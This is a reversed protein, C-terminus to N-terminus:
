NILRVTEVRSTGQLFTGALILRLNRFISARTYISLDSLRITTFESNTSTTSTTTPKQIIPLYMQVGAVQIEAVAFTQGVGPDTRGISAQVYFTAVGSFGYNPMFKLGAAADSSSIFDNNEIASIGDNKYLLGDSIGSIKFYTVEAGDYPSRSIVLGQTTKQNIRTSSPTISPTDAVPEVVVSVTAPLSYGIGVSTGSKSSQVEFQATGYFHGIPSFKLGAAGQDVTIFAGELIPTTGDNQFLQGNRINFLKFHTVSSGDAPNRSIVLGTKTQQHEVTKANTVIPTHSYSYINISATATNSSFAYAWGNQSVNAEEGPNGSTQDWARMLISSSGYYGPSPIVRVRTNWNNALLRSQTPSSSNLSMWSQGGDLSYQWVGHISDTGVVAVGQLAGGDNDSILDGALIETITTGPNEIDPINEYISNLQIVNRNLTPSTNYLLAGNLSFQGDGTLITVGVKGPMGAPATVSVTDNEAHVIVAPNDGILVSRVYNVVGLFTLNSGYVELGDGGSTLLRTRSLSTIGPPLGLEFAGIDCGNGVPRAMGRQDFNLTPGGCGNTGVPIFNLAPSGPKLRHTSTPGGNAALVDLLPDQNKINNTDSITCGNTNSILNYGDSGYTGACDSGTAGTGNLTNKGIISNRLSISGKADFIGGGNGGQGEIGGTGVGGKGAFNAFLTVSRLELQKDNYIGGGNGGPGPMAGLESSKDAGNGTGNESITSNVIVGATGGNYIGGGFGSAAGTSGGVGGNGTFNKNILSDYINLKGGNLIGGGYGGKAGTHTNLGLGGNGTYNYIINSKTIEITGTNYIGAGSGVISAELYRYPTSFEATFYEVGSEGDETNNYNVESNIVTAVGNNFIGAGHGGRKSTGGKKTQNYNIRSGSIYLTGSNNYVGGGDGGNGNVRGWCCVTWDFLGRGTQNYFLDSNYISLLGSENYIGAGNGSDAWGSNPTGNGSYNERLISKEITLNGLNLIGGGNKQEPSAIDTTRGYRIVVNKIVVNAGSFIQIVRDIGSTASLGSQIITQSSSVGQIIIDSKIDLDGTADNDENAGALTLKYVDSALIITDTGSGASCGSFALDSNAAQIAERLSCLPGTGFEDNSTTVTINAAQAKFLNLTIFLLFLLFVGVVRFLFFPSKSRHCM